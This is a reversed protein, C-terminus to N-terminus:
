QKIVLTLLALVVGTTILSVLGYAVGKVPRFEEMTVCRICRARMAELEQKSALDPLRELVMEVREKIQILLDHDQERDPSM